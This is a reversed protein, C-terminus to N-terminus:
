TSQINTKRSFCVWQPAKFIEGVMLSLALLSRLLCIAPPAAPWASTSARSSSSVLGSHLGQRGGIHDALSLSSLSWCVGPVSNLCLATSIIILRVAWGQEVVDLFICFCAVAVRVVAKLGDSWILELSQMSTILWLSDLYSQSFAYSIGKGGFFCRMLVRLIVCIMKRMQPIADLMDSFHVSFKMKFISIDVDCKLLSSIARSYAKLSNRTVFWAGM